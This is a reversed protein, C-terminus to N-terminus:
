PNTAGPADPSPEAAKRYGLKRLIGLLERLTPFPRRHEGKYRDVARFFEVEDATYEPECTTPDLGRRRSAARAYGGKRRSETLDRSM